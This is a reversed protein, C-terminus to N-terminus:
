DLPNTSGPVDSFIGGGPATAVAAVSEREREREATTWGYGGSVADSLAGMRREGTGGTGDITKREAGAKLQKM